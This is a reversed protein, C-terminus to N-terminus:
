KWPLINDAINFTAIQNQAKKWTINEQFNNKLIRGSM